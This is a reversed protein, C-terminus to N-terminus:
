LGMRGVAVDSRFKSACAESGGSLNRSFVSHKRFNVSVFSLGSLTSRVTICPSKPSAGRSCREASAFSTNRGISVLGAFWTPHGSTIVLSTTSFRCLNMAFAYTVMPWVSPFVSSGSGGASAPLVREPDPSPPDSADAEGPLSFSPGPFATASRFSAFPSSLASDSASRIWASSLATTVQVRWSM